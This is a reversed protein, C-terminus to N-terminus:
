KLLSTLPIKHMSPEGQALRCALLWLIVSFESLACSSTFLYLSTFGPHKCPLIGKQSALFVTIRTDGPGESLSKEVAESRLMYILEKEQLFIKCDELFSRIEQM